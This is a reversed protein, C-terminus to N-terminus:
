GSLLIFTVNASDLNMKWNEETQKAYFEVLTSARNFGSKILFVKCAYLSFSMKV